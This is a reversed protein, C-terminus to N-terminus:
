GVLANDCTATLEDCTATLEGCVTPPMSTLKPATAVLHCKIDKQKKKEEHRQEAHITKTRTNQQHRATPAASASILTGDPSFM